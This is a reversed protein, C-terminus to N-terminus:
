HASTNWHGSPEDAAKSTLPEAVALGDDETWALTEGEEDTSGEEEPETVAEPVGLLLTGAWDGESVALTEAEADTGAETLGEADTLGESDGEEEIAADTVAEDDTAAEIVGDEDTSGLTVGLVDTEGESELLGEAVGVVLGGTRLAAPRGTGTTQNVKSLLKTVLLYEVVSPADVAPLKVATALVLLPVDSCGARTKPDSRPLRTLEASTSPAASPATSVSTDLPM